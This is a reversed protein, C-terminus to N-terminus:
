FYSTWGSRDRRKVEAFWRSPWYLIFVAVMWMLYVFPLGYGYERLVEPSQDQPPLQLWTAISGYHLYSVLIAMTQLLPLHLLYFFLPVRGITVIWRTLPGPERDFAALALFAPGLTMLLFSLSPPYKECNLFSFLTFLPTVQWEWPRPDGYRNIGRIVLFLCCCAVGFLALTLRRRSTPLRFIPGMAYGLAMVGIWPILKYPVAVFYDGTLPFGFGGHLLVWIWGASGFGEPKVGDLANHGFIMLLGVLLVAWRPLFVLGALVIMSLGLVWIVMLLILHFDTTFFFGLRVLSLELLVLWLGRIVLFRALQVKSSGRFEMLAAGVGALFIFTPACFHSVWRTLFLAPTTQKPDTIDFWLADSFFHRAHDLTMLIMVLGRLMDVSPLRSSSKVAGEEM